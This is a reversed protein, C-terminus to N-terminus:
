EYRLAEVINFKSLNKVPVWSALISFLLVLGLIILFIFINFSFPVNDMFYIDSPIEFLRYRLQIFIIITSMLGGLLGGVFGIFVGQLIFIRVLNVKTIGQSLLIGIQSSKEIIIMAISAILNVLGLFITFKPSKQNHTRLNQEERM